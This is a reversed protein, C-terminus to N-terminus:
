SGVAYVPDLKKLENFTDIEIIEHAGVERVHVQYHEHFHNIAVVDWYCEKGGPAQYSVALDTAMQKGDQEDWYSIGYMHYCNEGGVKVKTIEHHKVEFCWDDTKEVPMALYNTHYEYKRILEPHYLILDAEMIYAKSFLDRVLYASSINNTENFMPNDIFKLMPYKKLLVDFQEGLYGRVITIDTIGAALVADILADILRQGNVKILPKPTNLTIPVLRSGFGAALFVARKVRYPELCEYGKLTVEFLSPGKQVMLENELLEAIVKNVVGVSVGLANALQRQTHKKEQHREIMVLVEFQRSTLSM